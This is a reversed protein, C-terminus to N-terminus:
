QCHCGGVKGKEEKEEMACKLDMMNLVNESNDHLWATVIFALVDSPSEGYMPVLEYLLKEQPDPLNVEM